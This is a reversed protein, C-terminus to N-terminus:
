LMHIANQLWKVEIRLFKKSTCTVVDIRPQLGPVDHNQIYCQCARLLRQQKTITISQAADVYADYQRYRVEIMLLSRGQRMILDIEGFRNRVNRAIAQCGRLQLYRM